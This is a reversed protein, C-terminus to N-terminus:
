RNTTTPSLYYIFLPTRITKWSFFFSPNYIHPAVCVCGVSLSMCMRMRVEQAKAEMAAGLEELYADDIKERWPALAAEGEATGELGLRQQRPPITSRVFSRPPSPHDTSPSQIPPPPMGVIYVDWPVCVVVCDM